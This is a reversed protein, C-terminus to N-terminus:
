IEIEWKTAWRNIAEKFKEEEKNTLERLAGRINGVPIGRMSLGLKFMSLYKGDHTIARLEDICKQIRKGEDIKGAMVANYLRVFPEGKQEVFLDRFILDM